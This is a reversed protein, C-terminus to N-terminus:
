TEPEEDRSSGLVKRLHVLAYRFRSAATNAPIDLVAAMEPFTLGEFVKLHVVERQEPSLEALARSLAVREGEDITEAAHAELLGDNAAGRAQERRRRRLVSYCENRTARRLYALPSAIDRAAGLASVFVQQVVDEAESRDALIMLAYRFLAAGHADYLAGLWERATGTSPPRDSM